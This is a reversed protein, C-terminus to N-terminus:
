IADNYSPYHSFDSSIVFLNEPTFWPRLAEAIEKIINTSNTGIIVPVISPNNTYYYQILPIQVELNHDRLHYDVPFRFIRNEAKLKDAIERNVKARGLPTIYDGTNFVSAGNFAQVHSSGIIFINKYSADKKTTSFGAAATKGSYVYGAHPVIIARVIGNEKTKKCENFLKEINKKLTEKDASYFRGAAYPERDNSKGQSYMEMINIISILAIIIITRM